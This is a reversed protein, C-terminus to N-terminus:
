ISSASDSTREFVTDNLSRELTLTFAQRVPAFNDSVVLYDFRYKGPKKIRPPLFEESTAFPNFRLETPSTHDIVFADFRREEGPPIQANPLRVGAWNYEVLNLRVSTRKALDTFSQMYAYCNKATKHRHHNKVTIHFWRSIKLSTPDTTDVHQKPERVMALENRWNPDWGRTRVEAEVLDPLKSRETFPIANAQIFGLVGDDKKVGDEQFALVDIGLFSAIALEQHSFLSGRCTGKGALKERKFDVFIFYESTRLQGFINEIIGRLTQEQVAIYPDFELTTLKAAIARAIEVEGSDKNQGCSIFVRARPAKLM